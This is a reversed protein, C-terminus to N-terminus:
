YHLKIENIALAKKEIKSDALLLVTKASVIRGRLKGM